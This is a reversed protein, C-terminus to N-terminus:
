LFNPAKPLVFDHIRELPNLLFKKSDKQLFYQLDEKIVRFAEQTILLSFRGKGTTLFASELLVPAGLAECVMLPTLKAASIKQVRIQARAGPNKSHTLFEFM